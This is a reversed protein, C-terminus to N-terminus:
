GILDIEFVQWATVRLFRQNGAVSCNKIADARTIDFDGLQFDTFDLASIGSQIEGGRHLSFDAFEFRLM